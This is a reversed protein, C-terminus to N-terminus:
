IDLRKIRSSHVKFRKMEGDGIKLVSLPHIELHTKEHAPNNMPM